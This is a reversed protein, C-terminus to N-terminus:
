RRVLAGSEALREDLSKKLNAVIQDATFFYRSHTQRLVDLSDAGFLVVEEHPLMELEWARLAALAEQEQEKPWEKHEIEPPYARHDAKLLIWKM